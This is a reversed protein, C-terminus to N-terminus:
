VKELYFKKLRIKDLSLLPYYNQTILVSSFTEKSFQNKELNIAIKHPRKELTNYGQRNFNM